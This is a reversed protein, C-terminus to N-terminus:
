APWFRQMVERWRSAASDPPHSPYKSVLAYAEQRECKMEVYSVMTPSSHPWTDIGDGAARPSLCRPTGLGKPGQRSVRAAECALTPGRGVAPSHQASPGVTHKLSQLMCARGPSRCTKPARCPRSGTEAPNHVTSQTRRLSHRCRYLVLPWTLSATLSSSNTTM